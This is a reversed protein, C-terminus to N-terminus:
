KNSRKKLAGKQIWYRITPESVDTLMAAHRNSKGNDLHQQIRELKDPTIKTRPIKDPQESSPKGADTMTQGPVYLMRHNGVFDIAEQISNVELKQFLTKTQNRITHHTRHLCDAIEMTNNGQRALMLIEKERETLPEITKQKWRQSIMCYQKCTLGDKHYLRLNGTERATSDGVCCILWRLTNDKLVHKIRHYVMHPLPKSNSLLKRQLRITCFFHDVDNGKQECDNVYQLVAKLGKRWLPLDAPYIIKSYFDDMLLSLADEVSYGCLFLDHPRVYCFQKLQVDVAYFSETVISAFMDLHQIFESDTLFDDKKM